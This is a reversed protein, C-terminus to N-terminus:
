NKSNEMVSTEASKVPETIENATKKFKNITKGLSEGLEPLKKPGFLLLAIFLIVLLGPTGIGAM